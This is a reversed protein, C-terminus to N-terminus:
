DGRGKLKELEAAFSSDQSRLERCFGNVYHRSLAQASKSGQTFLNQLIALTEAPTSTNGLQADIGSRGDVGFIIQRAEAVGTGNSDTIMGEFDLKAQIRASGVCAPYMTM